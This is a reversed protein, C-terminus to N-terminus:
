EKIPIRKGKEVKPLTITLVGNRYRAEVKDADVEAPLYFSRYFSLHREETGEKEKKEAAHTARIILQRGRLQIDFDKPEFGPTEARVIVADEKDEVECVWGLSWDEDPWLAPWGRFAEEFLRDMERRLRRFPELGGTFVPVLAGGNQGREQRSRRRWPILNFM